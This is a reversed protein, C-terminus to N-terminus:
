ILTHAAPEAGGGVATDAGHRELLRRAAAAREGTEVTVTVLVRGARVGAELQQADADPINMGVLSGALGGAAAGVGAGTVVSAGTIGLAGALAGGALLPGLGPVAVVGVAVLLGTLGGLVGGGVAGRAAEEAARTGTEATPEPEQPRHMALGIQGETFGAAKLAKVSEGATDLDRFLGAVVRREAERRGATEARNAQM